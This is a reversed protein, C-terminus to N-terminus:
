YFGHFSGGATFALAAPKGLAWWLGAALVWLLAIGGTSSGTISWPWPAGQAKPTETDLAM